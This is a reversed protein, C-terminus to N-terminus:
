KVNYYDSCGLKDDTLFLFHNLYVSSTKAEEGLNGLTFLRSLARILREIFSILTKYLLKYGEESNKPNFILKEIGPNQDVIFMKLKEFEEEPDKSKNVCDLVVNLNYYRDSEAFDSLINLIRKLESNSHIFNFDQKAAPINNHYDSDFCSNLIQTLLVDLNHGASGKKFIDRYPFKKNKEYYDLIIISKMFRELGSALMFLATYYFINSGSLSQIERLGYKLLKVSTEVEFILAINKNTNM